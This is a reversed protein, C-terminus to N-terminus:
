SYNAIAVTIGVILLVTFGFYTVLNKDSTPTPGQSVGNFFEQVQDLTRGKTEPCFKFVFMTGIMCVVCYFWFVGYEGLGSIM